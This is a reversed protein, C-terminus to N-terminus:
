PAAPALSPLVADPHVAQTLVLLGDVLRPGPRTVVIDDVARIAGDKVATLVSWGPRAAVADATVGYAGDGLLIIQPDAAVLAETGMEWNTASGTTVPEGGALKIMAEYVSDDAIGYVAVDSTGTEYFVRPAPLGTTAAAIQDFGARMSATLDKASDSAGVASGILEIDKLAGDVDAAYVVLVTIGLSRLKTVADPPTGFNGGAIVLDAGLGVIKETDVGQFTAVVPVASAEPPFDAIDEVKAVVRAGAGIAFLIETAAPTLSVIKQPEAPIEVPTGEDDTLAVPFAPIPTPAPTPAPTVAVATTPAVTSSGATSCAGALVISLLAGLVTRIPPRTLIYV